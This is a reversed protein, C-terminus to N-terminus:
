WLDEALLQNNIAIAAASGEAAAIVVQRSGRSVDGAVYVGPVDTAGDIGVRVCQKEDLECGLRAVFDSTQRSRTNFFLARRALARGGQFLVRLGAGDREFGILREERIAIGRRSLRAREAESLCAPGDTCLVVDRSWLSIELALDGGKADGTGYAALPQDRVEWADCYPCHFICQGYLSRAGPVEPLEDTLGTALLLKRARESLGDRSTVEFGGEVRRVATVSLQRLGVTEYPLLQARAIRLLEGPDIGDRTLFGHVARSARNRQRGDDYVLVRRLCRGLVLAASLGAPGGGIIIVDLV